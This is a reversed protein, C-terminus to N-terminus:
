KTRRLISLRKSISKKIYKALAKRGFVKVLRSLQVTERGFETLVVRYKPTLFVERDGCWRILKVKLKEKKITLQKIKADLVQYDIIIDERTGIM